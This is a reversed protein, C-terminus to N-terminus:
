LNFLHKPKVSLRVSCLLSCALQQHVGCTSFFINSGPQVLLFLDSQGWSSAMSLPKARDAGSKGLCSRLSPHARRVFGFSEAFTEMQQVVQVIQVSRHFITPRIPGATKVKFLVCLISAHQMHAATAPVCFTNPEASPLSISKRSM